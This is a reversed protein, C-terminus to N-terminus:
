EYLNKGGRGASSDVVVDVAYRLGLLVDLEMVDGVM